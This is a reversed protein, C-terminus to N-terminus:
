RRRHVLLGLLGLGLLAAVTPEPIPVFEVQFLSTDFQEATTTAGSPRIGFMDFSFSAGSPTTDTFSVSILGTGGINGGAMSAAILLGDAATRELSMQFTYEVGSAYGVLGSGAGNALSTGWNGSTTLFDGSAITRERLQFSSSHGLTQGMNMFMAYGTYAASAPADDSTLRAATPSHAVALRFNQSTNNLNVGTPTFVWTLELRDGTAALTVPNNPTTFYTTWSSSTTTGPGAMIMSLTGPAATLTGSGGSFWASELDGDGDADFGHESYVPAAPDSRSSDQWTDRVLVQAFGSASVSVTIALVSLIYHPRKM